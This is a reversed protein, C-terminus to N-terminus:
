SLPVIQVQSSFCYRTTLYTKPAVFRCSTRRIEPGMFARRSHLTWSESVGLLYREFAGAIGQAMDLDRSTRPRSSMAGPSQLIEPHLFADPTLNPPLRM